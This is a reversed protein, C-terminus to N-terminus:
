STIEQRLAYYPKCALTLKNGTCTGHADVHRLDQAVHRHEILARRQGEPGVVGRRQVHGPLVEEVAEAVGEELAPQVGEEPDVEGGAGNVSSWCISWFHPRCPRCPRCLPLLPIPPTCFQHTDSPAKRVAPIFPTPTTCDSSTASAQNEQKGSHLIDYIRYYLIQIYIYIYIYIYIDYAAICSKEM